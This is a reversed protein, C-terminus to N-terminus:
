ATDLVRVEGRDGDVELMQGTRITRTAHGVNVVSPIGYERAVISGHSLLGGRDLVIGAAPVFYPTWGPDSFPAVLIEGARVQDDDTARLIVRAPGTARGPSAAIGRLVGASPAPTEPETRGADFRGVVVPPPTIAQHRAHESRRSRIAARLDVNERSLSALEARDVFFVDDPAEVAGRAQLKAGLILLISRLLAISRMAENKLNERVAAGARARGLLLNFIRRKLPNRLRRRCEATLQSSRRALAEHQAIPDVEDMSELYGRLLGLVYDPRESWRPNLLEIEGRTHHGHTRILKDWRDLFECGEPTTALNAQAEPFGRASRLQETVSRRERAWAALKWLDHGSEASSIGGQGALLAGATAGHDDDLWRRCVHRLALFYLMGLSPGLLLDEDEFLADFVADFAELLRPESMGVFDRRAVARRQEAMAAIQREVGGPHHRVVSHLLGPLSLLTRLPRLRVDPLCADLDLLQEGAGGLVVDIDVAGAFPVRQGIAAMTTVNFYARGAVRGVLPADGIDLGLQGFRRRWGPVLTMLLSWTMPSVVDPLVEVTNINSWVQRDEDARRGQVATIPRAQLFVLGDDTLAWEIDQPLGARREVDVAVRALDRVQDDRLSPRGARGADVAREVIGGGPRVATEVRQDGFRSETIALNAKSVVFHDPTVRGSVVSEGLGWASEVVVRDRAGSVPDISFVVGSARAAALVQVIVAMAETRPDIGRRAAYTVARDSFFSAWCDRITELCASLDPVNLRTDHLGAFAAAPLDERTSSSRAAVPGEPLAGLGDEIERLLRDELPTGVIRRRISELLAKRQPEGVALIKEVDGGVSARDLHARFAATTVCFADPVSCGSERLLVLGTAKGGLRPSDTRRWDRFPVVRAEEM